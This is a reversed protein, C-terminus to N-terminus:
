VSRARKAAAHEFTGEDLGRAVGLAGARPVAEERRRARRRHRSVIVFGILGNVLLLANTVTFVWNGLLVSYSTFGVSAATQGVWLWKSVGEVSRSRWQKWNQGALTALLVLSSIWGILETM